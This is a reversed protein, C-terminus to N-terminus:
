DVFNLREGAVSPTFSCCYHEDEVEDVSVEVSINGGIYEAFSTVFGPGAGTTVMHFNCQQRVVGSLYFSYIFFAPRHM